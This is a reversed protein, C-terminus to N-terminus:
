GVVADVGRHKEGVIRVVVRNPICAVLRDAYHIYGSKICIKNKCPSSKIRAKGKEIAVETVGLPGKVQIVQDKALPYRSVEKQNVEIVVWDGTTGIGTKLFLLANLLIFFGILVKDARTLHMMPRTDNKVAIAQCIIM